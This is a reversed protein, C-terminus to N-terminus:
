LTSPLGEYVSGMSAATAQPKGAGRFHIYVVLGLNALGVFIAIVLGAVLAPDTAAAAAQSGGGGISPSPAWVWLATNGANDSQYIYFSRGLVLGSIVGASNPWPNSVRVPAWVNSVLNFVWMDSLVGASGIGGFVFLQDGCYGAAQLFRGPPMAGQAQMVFWQTAQVGGTVPKRNGPLFGWAHEHYLCFARQAPDSSTCTAFPDSGAPATPMLDAGGYLITVINFATFTGGVRPSPLNLLASDPMVQVWAVSGSASTIAALVDLAWLDNHNQVMDFGGFSYIVGGWDIIRQGYRRTPSGTTTITSYATPNASDIAYISNPTREDFTLVAGGSAQMYVPGVPGPLDPWTSWSSTAVDFAYTRNAGTAPNPGLWALTGAVGIPHNAVAPPGAQPTTPVVVHWSGTTGWDSQAGAGVAALLVVFASQSSGPAM